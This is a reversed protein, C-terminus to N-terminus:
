THNRSIWSCLLVKQRRANDKIEELKKENCLDKMQKTLTIGPDKKLMNHSIGNRHNRKKKIHDDNTYLFAVQKKM